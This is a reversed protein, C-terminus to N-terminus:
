SQLYVFGEFTKVSFYYFYYIGTYAHATGTFYSLPSSYDVHQKANSVLLYSNSGVTFFEWDIASFFLMFIVPIAFVIKM